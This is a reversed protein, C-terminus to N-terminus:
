RQNYFSLLNRGLDTLNEQIIANKVIYKRKQFFVKIYIKAFIGVIYFPFSFKYYDRTMNLYLKNNRNKKLM